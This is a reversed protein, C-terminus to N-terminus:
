KGHQTIRLEIFYISRQQYGKQCTKILNKKNTDHRYPNINEFNM